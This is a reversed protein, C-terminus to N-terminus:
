PRRGPPPLLDHLHCHRGRAVVRQWRCAPRPIRRGHGTCWGYFPEVTTPFNHTEAKRSLVSEVETTQFFDPKDGSAPAFQEIVPGQVFAVNDKYASILNNPNIQSTRKILQFLSLEKEEGDIIFKGNFIKHRCHESNVQSFGFVESDTLKRGMKSSVGNLYEIEDESLALGEINNYAAIDDIYLIEEPQKDITFLRQDLSEYKRQLMPDFDFPTDEPMPTYEEIRAIGEIGMNQTIEVACTSWPTIMERRPGIFPSSIAETNLPVANGFLWTLKEVTEPSFDSASEVAIVSHSPTRFFSIM